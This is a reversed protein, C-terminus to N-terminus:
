ELKCVERFLISYILDASMIRKYIDPCRNCNCLEYFLLLGIEVCPCDTVSRLIIYCLLDVNEGM